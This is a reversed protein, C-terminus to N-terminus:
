DDETLEFYVRDIANKIGQTWETQQYENLPQFDPFYMALSPDERYLAFCNSSSIALCRLFETYEESTIEKDPRKLYRMQHAVVCLLTRIIKIKDKNTPWVAQISATFDELANQSM